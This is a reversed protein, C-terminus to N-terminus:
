SVVTAAVPITFYSYTHKELTQCGRCPAKRKEEVIPNCCSGSELVDDSVQAVIGLNALVDISPECDLIRVVPSRLCKYVIGIEM